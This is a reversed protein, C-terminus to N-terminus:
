GTFVFIFFFGEDKEKSPDLLVASSLSDGGSSENMRKLLNSCCLEPSAFGCTRNTVVRTLKLFNSLTRFTVEDM